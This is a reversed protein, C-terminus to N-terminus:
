LNNQTDGSPSPAPTGCVINFPLIPLVSDKQEQTLCDYCEGKIIVFWASDTEYPSYDNQLCSPLAWTITRGDATPFGLCSNIQQILTNAELETTYRLWGLHGAEHAM